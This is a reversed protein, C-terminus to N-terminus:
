KSFYFDFEVAFVLWGIDLSVSREWRFFTVQPLIRLQTTHLVAKFDIRLTRKFTKNPAYMPLFIFFYFNDTVTCHLHKMMVILSIASLANPAWSTVLAQLSILVIQCPTQMGLAEWTYQGITTDRAVFPLGNCSKELQGFTQVMKMMQPAETQLSERPSTKSNKHPLCLNQLSSIFTSPSVSESRTNKAHEGSRGDRM